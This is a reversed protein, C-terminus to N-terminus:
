DVFRQVLRQLLQAPPRWIALQSFQSRLHRRRWVRVQEGVGLLIWLLSASAFGCLATTKAVEAGALLETSTALLRDGGTMGQLRVGELGRYLGSLTEFSALTTLLTPVAAVPSRAVSAMLISPYTLCVIHEQQRNLHFQTPHDQPCYGDLHDLLWRIQSPHLQDLAIVQHPHSRLLRIGEATTQCHHICDRYLARCERVIALLSISVILYMLLTDLHNLLQM